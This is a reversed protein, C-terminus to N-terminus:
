SNYRGHRLHQRGTTNSFNQLSMCLHGQPSCQTAQRASQYFHIFCFRTKCSHLVRSKFESVREPNSDRLFKYFIFFLLLVSTDSRKQRAALSVPPLGGQTSPSRRMAVTGAECKAVLFLGCSQKRLM